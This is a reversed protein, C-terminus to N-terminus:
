GLQSVKRQWAPSSSWSSKMVLVSNSRRATSSRGKPRELWPLPDEGTCLAWLLLGMSVSRWDGNM